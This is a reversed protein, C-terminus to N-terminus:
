LKGLSHPPWYRFIVKGVIRSSPLPGWSRSDSSEPRNDGLVFYEGERLTIEEGDGSFPIAGFRMVSEEGARRVHMSPMLRDEEVFETSGRAKITLLYKKMRITDGPVGVIRKVMYGSLRMGYPDRILTSKQLTFFGAFPELIRSIIMPEEFLPPRVVVLDGRSPAILGPFRSSSFPVRPGFALCSVVVRDSPNLKPEMSVSEVRFTAIFFRSIVLYLAFALLALRLPRLWALNPKRKRRSPSYHEVSGIM